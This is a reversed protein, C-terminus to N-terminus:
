RVVATRATPNVPRLAIAVAAFLAPAMGAAVILRPKGALFFGAGLGVSTAALGRLTSDPLGQLASTTSAASAQTARMSGAARGVITAM